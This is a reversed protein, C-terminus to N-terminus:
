KWSMLIINWLYVDLTDQSRKMKICNEEAQQEQKQCSLHLFVDSTLLFIIELDKINGVISKMIQIVSTIIILIM